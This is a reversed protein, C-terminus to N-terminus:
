APSAVINKKVTINKEVGIFHSDYENWIQTMLISPLDICAPIWIKFTCNGYVLGMIAM